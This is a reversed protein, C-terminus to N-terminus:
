LIKRIHQIVHSVWRGFVTRHYMKFLKPPKRIEGMDQRVRREIEKHPIGSLGAQCRMDMYYYSKLNKIDQGYSTLTRSIMVRAKNYAKQKYLALITGYELYGPDTTNDRSEAKFLKGDLCLQKMEKLLNDKMTCRDFIDYEIMMKQAEPTLLHFVDEFILFYNVSLEGNNYVREFYSPQKPTMRHYFVTDPSVCIKNHTAIYRVEFGQTDFGHHEPFGMGDHLKATADYSTRTFLFNDVVIKSDDFLNSLSITKQSGPIKSYMSVYKETENGHFFRQESFITGDIGNSAEMYSIMRGMSGAGFFNDSDLCYILDGNSAQIGTNRAAGGGRNKDHFVTKIEPHISALKEMTQRTRDTSCDDVMIIEFPIAIDQTYCSRVAEELTDSCNYCPIIISLKKM